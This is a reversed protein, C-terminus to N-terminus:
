IYMGKTWELKRDPHLRGSPSLLSKYKKRLTENETVSRTSAGPWTQAMRSFIKSLGGAAFCTQYHALIEEDNKQKAIAKPTPTRSAPSPLVVPVPSATSAPAVIHAPSVVPSVVCATKPVSTAVLSGSCLVAPSSAVRPAPSPQTATIDSQDALQGARSICAGNHIEVITPPVTSDALEQFRRIYSAMRSKLEPAEPVFGTFRSLAASNTLLAIEKIPQVPVSSNTTPSGWAKEDDGVDGAKIQGSQLYMLGVLGTMIHSCGGHNEGATCVDCKAAVIESRGGAERGVPTKFVIEVVRAEKTQSRDVRLLFFLFENV